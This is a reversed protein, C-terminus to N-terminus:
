IYGLDEVEEHGRAVISDLDWGEKPELLLVGGLNFLPFVLGTVAPLGLEVGDLPAKGFKGGM